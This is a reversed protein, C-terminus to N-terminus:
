RQKRWIYFFFIIMPFHLALYFFGMINLHPFLMKASFLLLVTQSLATLLSITKMSCRRWATARKLEMTYTKERAATMMARLNGAGDKLIENLRVGQEGFIRSAVWARETDSGLGQMAEAIAEMRTEMPMALLAHFDVGLRSFSGIAENSGAAANGLTTNLKRLGADLQQGSVGVREASYALDQYAMVGMGAASAAHKIAEGTKAVGGVFATQAGIFASIQIFSNRMLTSFSGWSRRFNETSKALNEMAATARKTSQAIADYVAPAKDSGAKAKNYAEQAETLKNVEARAAAIAKANKRMNEAYSAREEQSAGKGPKSAELAEKHKNRSALERQAIELRKNEEGTLSVPMKLSAKNLDEFMRAFLSIDKKAEGISNVWGAGLVAGITFTAALDAM